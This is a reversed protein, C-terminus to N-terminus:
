ALESDRGMSWLSDEEPSLGLFSEKVRKLHINLGNILRRLNLVGLKVIIISVWHVCGSNRGTRGM